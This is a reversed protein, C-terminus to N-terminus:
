RAGSINGFPLGSQAPTSTKQKPAKGWVGLNLAKLGSCIHIAVLLRCICSCAGTDTGADARASSNSRLLARDERGVLKITGSHDVFDIVINKWNEMLTWINM